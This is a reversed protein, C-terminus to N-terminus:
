KLREKLKDFKQFLIRRYRTVAQTLLQNLANKCCGSCLFYIIDADDHVMPRPTLIDIFKNKSLTPREAVFARFNEWQKKNESILPRVVNGCGICTEIPHMKAM